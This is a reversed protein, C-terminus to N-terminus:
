DRSPICIKNKDGEILTADGVVVLNRNEMQWRWDASGLMRTATKNYNILPKGGEAITCFLERSNGEFPLRLRVSRTEAPGLFSSM